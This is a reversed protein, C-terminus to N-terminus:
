EHATDKNKVDIFIRIVCILLLIISTIVLAPKTLSHCRMHTSECVGILVTPIALAYIGNVSIAILLGLKTGEAKLVLLLVGLIIIVIGVGLEAQATWHCASYDKVCNEDECDASNMEQMETSGMNM